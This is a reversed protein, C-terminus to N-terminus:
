LDITKLEINNKKFIPGALKESCEMKIYFEDKTLKTIGFNGSGDLTVVTIEEALELVPSFRVLYGVELGEEYPVIYGISKLNVQHGQELKSKILRLYDILIQKVEVKDWGLNLTLDEIQENIGYEKNEEIVIDKGVYNIKFISLIDLDYGELIKQKLLESYEKALMNAKHKSIGNRDKLIDVLDSYKLKHETRKVDESM